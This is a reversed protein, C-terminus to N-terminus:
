DIGRDREQGSQAAPGRRNGAARRHPLGADAVAFGARHADANRQGSSYHDSRGSEATGAIVGGRDPRHGRRLPGQSGRHEWAGKGHDQRSACLDRHPYKRRDPRHSRTEDRGGSLGRRSHLIDGQTEPRRGIGAPLQYGPGPIFFDSAHSFRRSIEKIREEQELVQEMLSPLHILEQIMRRGTEPALRGCAEAMRMALLYLCVLQTTFAKTSAVGIEPGAQTYIVGEVGRALSSGVVNCIALTRVNKKQGERLAGLTDTTEGSQSILVLLTQGDVIPDRYRFESGLDVEVPIRTLEEIMFKGVLSAHWSTGCAVIHIKKLSRIEEDTFPLDPLLVRGQELSVRGRFTDIVARPQEFIEKQMFHKYGAKQAMVPDWMVPHIEKTLDQGDLNTFRVGGRYLFALEGDDVYSVKRTHELIAPVDSAIYYEGDGYGVILPSEKRAAILVDPRERHLIGLAFSGQIRQIARTVGEEFTNGNQCYHDILHGM